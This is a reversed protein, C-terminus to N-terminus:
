AVLSETWPRLLEPKECLRFKSRRAPRFGGWNPRLMQDSVLSILIDGKWDAM